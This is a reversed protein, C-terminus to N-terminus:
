EAEGTDTRKVPGVYIGVPERNWWDGTAQKEAWSTFEYRYRRARIHMPPEDPFPNDNLLSLVDPDNALLKELLRPFWANRFTPRPQMAAFWIQWDLRLHYPAWQPPRRSLDTPKGKFGYAQWETDDTIEDDQTGEIVIEHRTKTVSGFAGYTNVLHLQNFSTNMIQRSSLLNKVPRYSLVIVGAALLLVTAHHIPHISVTQPITLPLFSLLQDSFLPIALVITLFNLFAYNGTLMLWSMHGVTLLGAVAAVPQPAFYFFPVIVEIVHNGLVSLKHFRDPLKDAYWSLPNPLPQTEYHYDLCTLKKWCDDGRLKILGAGLMNRFQVWRLLLIVVVPTTTHFAGLFIALFGTELLMSEWGFGYFRQGANVFSLYLLWLLGWILVSFLTGFLESIGTVALMSLVVGTWAAFAIMRDSPYFYFLSPRERFTFNDVYRDIPLLGDEGLLPRFQNAAVLFALLYVLGLGRQFLFRALWYDSGIWQGVWQEVSM